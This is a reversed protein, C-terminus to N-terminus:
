VMGCIIGSDNIGQFNMRSINILGAATLIEKIQSESYSQGRPTNVLMNLSFIAPFLPHDLSDDLIFDHVYVMGGPKLASVAKKIIKFCDEPGEGHLIQSLWAVDYSGKIDEFLYNGGIFAIRDALSFENIMRLAYPATEPLDYITAKLHPNALCFHIAHTGPGGGLDILHKHTSLDILSAIQPAIASALTHMGMLFSERQEESQDHDTIFSKGTKISEVLLSWANVTDHFHSIMYGIYEKSEKVLFRKSAKTNEYSNVNKTLLGMAVLANLLMKLARPDAGIKKALDASTVASDGIATFVDLKVGAQLTFSQWCDGSIKLLKESSWKEVMNM